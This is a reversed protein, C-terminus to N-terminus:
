ILNKQLEAIQNDIEVLRLWISDGALIEQPTLVEPMGYEANAESMLVSQRQASEQMQILLLKRQIEPLMTNREVIEIQAIIAANPDVSDVPLAENGQEIWSVYERYDTNNTDFPIFANDSLRIVCTANATRKYM